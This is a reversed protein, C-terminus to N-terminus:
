LVKYHSLMVDLTQGPAASSMAVGVIRGLDEVIEDMVLEYLKAADGAETAANFKALLSGEIPAANNRDRRQAEIKAAFREGPMAALRRLYALPKGNVGGRSAANIADHKPFDWVLIDGAYIQDPGNNNTSYSGACIVAMQGGHPGQGMFNDGGYEFETKAIGIFYFQSRLQDLDGSPLGALSSLGTESLMGVKYRDSRSRRKGFVLEGPMVKLMNKDAAGPYFQGRGQSANIERTKAEHEDFFVKRTIEAQAPVQTYRGSNMKREKDRIWNPKKFVALNSFVLSFVCWNSPDPQM